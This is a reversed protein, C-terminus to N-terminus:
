LLSLLTSKGSGSPGVIAVSEGRAIRFGVGDLITLEGSPLAVRKGLGDVRLADQLMPESTDAMPRGPLSASTDHSSRTRAGGHSRAVGPRRLVAGAVDALCRRHLMDARLVDHCQR